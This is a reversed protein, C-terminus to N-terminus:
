LVYLYTYCIKIKIVQVFGEPEVWKALEEIDLYGDTDEDLVEMFNRKIAKLYDPPLTADDGSCYFMEHTIYTVTLFM